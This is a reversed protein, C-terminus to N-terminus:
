DISPIFALGKITPSDVVVMKVPKINIEKEAQLAKVETTSGNVTFVKEMQLDGDDDAVEDYGAFEEPTISTYGKSNSSNVKIGNMDIKVNTNYIEGHAMSWQRPSDGENLMLNTFITDADNSGVRLTIDDEQAIFTVSYYEYGETDVGTDTYQSFARRDDNMDGNYVVVYARNESNTAKVHWSMTYEQGANVKIDQYLNVWDTSKTFHFGSGAGIKKLENNQITEPTGGGTYWFDLDSYGVSNNILNTGNSKSIKFDFSDTSQILESKTAYPSFDINDVKDDTYAKDEESKQDLEEKSVKDGLEESNAKEDMTNQFSSNSM